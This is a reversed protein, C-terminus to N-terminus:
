TVGPNSQITEDFDLTLDSRNGRLALGLRLGHRRFHGPGARQVPVPQVQGMSPSNLATPYTSPAPRPGGTLQIAAPSADPTAFSLPPPPPVALPPLNNVVKEPADALNMKTRPKKGNVAVIMAAGVGLIVVIGLVNVIKNSGKRRNVSPLGEIDAQEDFIKETERSRSGRAHRMADALTPDSPEQMSMDPLDDAPQAGTARQGPKQGRGKLKDWASM